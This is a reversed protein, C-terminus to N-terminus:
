EMILFISHLLKLNLTITKSRRDLIVELDLAKKDRVFNIIEEERFEDNKVYLKNLYKQGKRNLTGIGEHIYEEQINEM